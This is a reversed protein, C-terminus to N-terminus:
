RTPMALKEPHYYRNYIRDFTGDARMAAFWSNLSDLLAPSDRRVAWAQFQTFTIDTAIDIQPLAPMMAEAVEYECVAFDIDGHAVM